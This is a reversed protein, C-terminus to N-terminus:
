AEFDVVARESAVERLFAAAAQHEPHKQYALLDMEDDFEAVLALDWSAESPNFNAGAQIRRIEPIKGKLTLLRERAERLNEEKSRGDASPKLKWFVLHHVM